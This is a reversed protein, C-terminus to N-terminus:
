HKLPFRINTNALVAEASERSVDAFQSLDSCAFAIEGADAGIAKRFEEAAHVSPFRWVGREHWAGMTKALKVAEDHTVKM